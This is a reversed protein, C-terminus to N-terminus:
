AVFLKFYDNFEFEEYYSLIEKPVKKKSLFYDLFDFVKEEEEVYNYPIRLLHIKNKKCYNNKINDNKKLSEFGDVGRFYDIPEFHQKGDGEFCFTIGDKKFVVDFPLVHLNKCDDFFGEAQFELNRLKFYKYLLKNLKSQKCHKCGTKKHIRSEPRMPWSEGCDLCKWWYEEHSGAIVDSAKCGNREEDFELALDPYCTELDNYGKLLKRNDCIPCGHGDSRSYLKAPWSHEFSKGNKIVTHKWWVDIDKHYSVENPFIGLANNKEWDWEDLLYDKGYYKCRTAFDNFGEQIKAGSCIPCGCGSNTRVALVAPWSHEFIQGNFEITHKWNIMVDAAKTFQTPLKGGNNKYDWESLMNMKNYNKCWTAFDNFGVLVEKGRCYKCYGGDLRRGPSMSYSHGEKCIWWVDKAAREYIEFPSIENKEWDWEKLLSPQRTGFDNFGSLVKTNDCYFCGKNYTTREKVKRPYPHGKDCIWNITRSSGRTVLSPLLDGNNEYDWEDLLFEKNNEKSWVELNNEKLLTSQKRTLIKTVM